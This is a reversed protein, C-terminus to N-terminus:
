TFGPKVSREFMLHASLPAGPTRGKYVLTQASMKQSHALPAGSIYLHNRLKAHLGIFLKWIPTKARPWIYIYIYIYTHSQKGM